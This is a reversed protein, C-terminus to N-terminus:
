TLDKLKEFFSKHKQNIEEGSTEALERLLEEQRKTLNTPTKVVVQVLQDGRSNEHLHYFGQGKIRFIENTQTGPSINLKKSGELTPVEIEAGLAAQSFSIPVQCIVDDGDREFFQHPEVHIVM